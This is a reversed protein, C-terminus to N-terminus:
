TPAPLNRCFNRIGQEMVDIFKVADGPRISALTDKDNHMVQSASSAQDASELEDLADIYPKLPQKRAQALYNKQANSIRESDGSAYAADLEKNFPKLSDWDVADGTTKVAGIGKAVRELEAPQGEKLLSISVAALGKFQYALHDSTPTGENQVVTLTTGEAAARMGDLLRTESPQEPRAMKVADPDGAFLATLHTANSSGAYIQNGSGALDINIMLAPCNDEDRCAQVMATSGILGQEEADFFAMKVHCNEPPREQLRRGLELVVACGSGNDFAGESGEGIKDYHAGLFLVPAQTGPRLPTVDAIINVGSVPELEAGFWRPPQGTFSQTRSSFGREGLMDLIIERRDENTSERSILEVDSYFSQEDWHHYANVVTDIYVSWDSDPVLVAAEAAPFLGAVSDHTARSFGLQARYPELVRAVAERECSSNGACDHIANAVTRDLTGGDVQKVAALGRRLEALSPSRPPGDTLADWGKALAFTGLGAAITYAAVRGPQQRIFGLAGASILSNGLQSLYGAISAPKAADVPLLPAEPQAAVGMRPGSSVVRRSNADALLSPSCSPSSSMADPRLPALGTSADNRAEAEIQLPSRDNPVGGLSNQVYLSLLAVQFASKAALPTPYGTEPGRNLPQAAPVGSFDDSLDCFGFSADNGVASLRAPIASSLMQNASSSQTNNFTGTAQRYSQIGNLPM